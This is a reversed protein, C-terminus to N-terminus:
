PTEYTAVFDKDARFRVDLRAQAGNVVATCTTRTGASSGVGNPCSVSTVSDGKARIADALKKELSFSPRTLLITGIVAAAVVCATIAWLWWRRYWPNPAPAPPYGGYEPGYPQQGYPDQGYPSGQTPGQPQEGYQQWYRPDSPEVPEGYPPQEAWPNESM